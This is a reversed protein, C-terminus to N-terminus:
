SAPQSSQLPYICDEIKLKRNIEDAAHKSANQFAIGIACGLLLLSLPIATLAFSLSPRVVLVTILVITAMSMFAWTMATNFGAEFKDSWTFDRIFVTGDPEIDMFKRARRMTLWSVDARDHLDVLGKRWTKEAYMGTAKEFIMADRIDELVSKCFAEDPMSTLNDNLWKLRSEKRGLISQLLPLQPIKVLLYAFLVIALISSGLPTGILTRITEVM